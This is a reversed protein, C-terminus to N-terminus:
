NPLVCGTKQALASLPIFGQEKTGDGFEWTPYSEIGADTCVQTQGGNNPLSCEVYNMYKSSSGFAKKQDTCHPCWYAGYMKAGSQTICQAFGDYKGATFDIIPTSLIVLVLIVLGIGIFIYASPLKTEVKSKKELAHKDKKHSALGDANSFKRDCVDCVFETM